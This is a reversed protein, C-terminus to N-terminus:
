APPERRKRAREGEVVFRRSQYVRRDPFRMATLVGHRVTDLGFLCDRTVRPHPWGKGDLVANNRHGYAVPADGDYCDPFGEPGWILEDAAYGEAPWSAAAIGGHVCLVDASQHYVELQLFFGLHSAPMAEFFRHYSLTVEDLYISSGAEEIESRLAGAVAKSYSAVTRLGAMGLIWSHRRSDERSRLMWQEHNGMLAIVPCPAQRRLELIRGICGKVDPGDDIYDGLFVLEDGPRLELEVARLLDNLADLNGHIDGIAYTAM